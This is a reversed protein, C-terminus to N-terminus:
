FLREWLKTDLKFKNQFNVSVVNINEIMLSFEDNSNIRVNSISNRKFSILEIFEHFLDSFQNLSLEMILRNVVFIAVLILFLLLLWFQLQLHLFQVIYIKLAEEEDQEVVLTWKEGYVNLPIFSSIVSVGRYIKIIVESTENKELSAKTSETKKSLYEM